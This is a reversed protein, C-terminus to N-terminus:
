LRNIIFLDDMTVESQVIGSHVGPMVGFTTVMTLLLPKTSHTVQRFLAMKNRLQQEYSKTITYPETSFKMECINIARDGREILLDIQAGPQEASGKHRWSCSNTAIGNIGLAQKIQQLHAQCVMEFSFGQWALVSASMLHTSWYHADKTTNNRVFKFYFLVYPDAIRYLSNRVSSKYKAYTVVFDCRELNELVQTLNGGSIGTAEVIEQRLMGERRGALAEVVALYRDAQPFLAAFMQEFEERMMANKEFFLRDINQALTQGPQLLSLYFPVGGFAMYCQVISYRDWHCGMAHLMEECEGLVFPRLYVRATIRNHLGGHNKVLKDVMWSTASGCAIFLIDDRQAAWANWFYELADVFSSRPTDIWPMEDFFIVKREDHPLHEILSRLENFADNWNGLSPVFPSGSFVQLQHAFRQLQVSTDQDRAGVFTFTFRDGFLQNVLFTKGIRRRGYVIVFESRSSDYLRELERRERNRAILGIM